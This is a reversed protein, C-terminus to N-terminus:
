RKPSKATFFNKLCAIEKQNLHRYKKPSLDALKIPGIAIRHLTIVRLSLERAMRRIQRNRGERLEIKLLTNQGEKKVVSTQTSMTIGDELKVGHRFKNIKEPSLRGEVLVLYTKPLHYRPHTAKM